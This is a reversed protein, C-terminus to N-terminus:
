PSVLVIVSIKERNGSLDQELGRPNDLLREPDFVFCVLTKCNSHQAYRDIDIILQEGVDKDRLTDRTKKVEIVTDEPKLLFDMRSSSGAYSPTWEEPRVDDFHLRLLALFLFQVDYEDQIELPPRGRSRKALEHAFVPFRRCLFLVKDLATDAHDVPITVLLGDLFNLINKKTDEAMAANAANEKADMRRNFSESGGVRPFTSWRPTATVQRFDTLFDPWDNRIIPTAKAIWAAIGAWPQAPIIELESKLKQLREARNNSV